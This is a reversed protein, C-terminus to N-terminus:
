KVQIRNIYDVLGLIRSRVYTDPNYPMEMYHEAARIRYDLGWVPMDRTGHASPQESGEISAYIRSLPLVGGNNRALVTLDPASRTLWPRLVGDGKGAPGHCSACNADYEAKGPDTQAVARTQATTPTSTTCAAMVFAGTLLAPIVALSKM